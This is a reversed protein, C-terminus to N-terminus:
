YIELRSIIVNTDKKLKKTKDLIEIGRGSSKGSPKKIWELKPYKEIMKTALDYQDPLVFTRPVFNWQEKGYKKKM